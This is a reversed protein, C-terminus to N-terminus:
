AKFIEVHVNLNDQGVAQFLRYHGSRNQGIKGSDEIVGNTTNDPHIADVWNFKVPNKDLPGFGIGSFVGGVAKKLELVNSDYSVALQLGIIGPNNETSVTVTITDGPKGSADSVAFTAEGAASVPVAVVLLALAACLCLLKKMM